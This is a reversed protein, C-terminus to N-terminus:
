PPGARVSTLALHRVGELDFPKTLFFTHPVGPVLRPGVASMLILPIGKLAPDEHMARALAHGDLRPMMVNSLVVDYPAAALAELAAQGDPVAVVRYGEDAFALALLERIPAEDEAILIRGSM